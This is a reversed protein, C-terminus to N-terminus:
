NSENSINICSKTLIIIGCKRKILYDIIEINHGVIAISNKM